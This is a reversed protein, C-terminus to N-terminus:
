TTLRNYLREVAVATRALVFDKQIQLQPVKAKSGLRRALDTHTYGEDLLRRILMWTRGAPVISADGRVSEDVALLKDETQKRIQKKTGRRVADITSVAVGSAAAVADRGVGRRSLRRLHARARRAAVLGNWGGDKKAAERATQYRSNAARCLMCRCGAVYKTREGHPKSEALTQVDLVQNSPITM